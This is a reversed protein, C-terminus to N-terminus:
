HRPSTGPRHKVYCIAEGGDEYFGPKVGIPRYSHRQYFHMAVPNDARVELHLAACRRRWADRECAALLRTGLGRRAQDAAVAISYLRGQRSHRRYHLVAAAAIEGNPSALVLVSQSPSMVARKIARRSLRDSRFCADEIRKLGDVDQLDARRIGADGGEVAAAGQAPEAFPASAGGNRRAAM